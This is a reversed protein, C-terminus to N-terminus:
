CIICPLLHGAGPAAASLGALVKMLMHVIAMTGRYYVDVEGVKKLIPILRCAALFPMMVLPIRGALLRNVFQTIQTLLTKSEDGELAHRLHEARVGSPGTGSRAPFSKLARRVDDAGVQVPEPLELPTQIAGGAPHKAKLANLTEIGYPAIGASTLIKMAKSSNGAMVLQEVIEQIAEPLGQDMGNDSAADYKGPKFTSVLEQFENAMWHRLRKTTYERGGRPPACLCLKAILILPGYFDQEAAEHARKLAQSWLSRNPKAIMAVTSTRSALILKARVWTANDTTFRGDVFRPLLIEYDDISTGRLNKSKVDLHAQILADDLHIVPNQLAGPIPM